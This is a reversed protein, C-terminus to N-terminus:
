LKNQEINFSDDPLDINVETNEFKILTFDDGPELFKVQSVQLDNKSFLIEISTIMSSVKENEPTLM